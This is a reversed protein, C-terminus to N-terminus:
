NTVKQAKNSLREILILALVARDNSLNLRKMLWYFLVGPSTNCADVSQFPCSVNDLFDSSLNQFLCLRERSFPEMTARRAVAEHSVYAM